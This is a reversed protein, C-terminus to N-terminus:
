FRSQPNLRDPVSQIMRSSTVPSGGNVALSPYKGLGGRRSLGPYFGLMPQSMSGSLGIASLVGTERLLDITFSALGGMLLLNGQRRGVFRSVLYSPILVSAAKVGYYAIRSTRMTEPLMPMIFNAVMPPVALGAGVFLVDTVPPLSFGLLQPNRRYSRRRRNGLFTYNRRARRRKRNAM